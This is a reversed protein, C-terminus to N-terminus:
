VKQFFFMYTRADTRAYSIFFLTLLIYTWVKATKRAKYDTFSAFFMPILLLIFARYYLAIRGFATFKLGIVELVLYIYSCACVTFSNVNVSFKRKYMFFIIIIELIWLLIGGGIQANWYNMRFYSEYRPIFRAVIDGIISYSLPIAIGMILLYKFRSFQLSKKRGLIFIAFLLLLVVSSNHIMYALFVIIVSKFYNKERITKYAQIGIAIALVQRSLNFAQMYLSECMFVYMGTFMDDTNEYIFKAMLGNTLFAIIVFMTQPNNSFIQIMKILLLFGNEVTDRFGFQDIYWVSRTGGFIIQRWSVYQAQEFMHRYHNTDEGVSNARFGLVISLTIVSLWLFLKKRNHGYTSHFCLINYFWILFLELIYVSM